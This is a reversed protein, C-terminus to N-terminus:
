VMFECKASMEYNMAAHNYRELTAEINKELDALQKEHLTKIKSSERDQRIGLTKREETFKKINNQKKERLRREKDGKTKLAKDNAVDKATEANM